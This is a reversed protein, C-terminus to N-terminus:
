KNEKPLQKKEIQYIGFALISGITATILQTMGMAAQLSSILKEPFINFGNLLTFSGFIVLVKTFIGIIGALFYNKKNKLMVLKYMYVLAFNGLWIAPIMFAMYISATGFIFGSAITSISPMTIIGIIKKWGKLNIACIILATNVISGIIFQSHSTIVSQSGFVAKILQALFTPVLFAIAGLLIAQITEIKRTFQYISQNITNEKEM